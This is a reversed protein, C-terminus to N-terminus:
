QLHGRSRLAATVKSPTDPYPMQKRKSFADWHGRWHQRSLDPLPLSLYDTSTAQCTETKATWGISRIRLVGLHHVRLLVVCGTNTKTNKDEKIVKTNHTRKEKKRERWHISHPLMRSWTLKLVLAFWHDVQTRLDTGLYFSWIKGPWAQNQRTNYIIGSAM